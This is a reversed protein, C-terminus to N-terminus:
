PPVCNRSETRVLSGNVFVKIVNRQGSDCSADTVTGPVETEPPPLPDAATTSRSSSSTTKTDQQVLVVALALCPVIRLFAACRTFPYRRNRTPITM